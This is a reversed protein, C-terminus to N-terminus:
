GNSNDSRVKCSGISFIMYSIEQQQQAPQGPDTNIPKPAEGNPLKWGYLFLSSQIPQQRCTLRSMLLEYHQKCSKRDWKGADSTVAQIFDTTNQDYYDLKLDTLAAFQCSHAFDLRIGEFVQPIDNQLMFSRETGDKFATRDSYFFHPDM